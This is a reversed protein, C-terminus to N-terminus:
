VPKLSAWDVTGGRGPHFAANEACAPSGHEAPSPVRASGRERGHAMSCAVHLIPVGLPIHVAREWCLCPDPAAMRKSFKIRVPPLPRPARAAWTCPQSRTVLLRRASSAGGRCCVFFTGCGPWAASVPLSGKGPWPPRGDGRGTEGM